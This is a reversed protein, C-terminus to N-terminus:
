NRNGLLKRSHDALEVDAKTDCSSLQRFNLDIQPVFIVTGLVFYGGGGRFAMFSTNLLNTQTM